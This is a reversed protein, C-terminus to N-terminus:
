EDALLAHLQPWEKWCLASCVQTIREHLAIREPDDTQDFIELYREHWAYLRDHEFSSLYGEDRLEAIWKPFVSYWGSKPGVPFRPCELLEGGLGLRLQEAGDEGTVRDAQYLHYRQLVVERPLPLIEEDLSMGEIVLWYTRWGNHDVIRDVYCETNLPCESIHPVPGYPSPVTHLRTIRLQDLGAPLDLAALYHARVTERSGWAMVCRAGECLTEVVHADDLPVSVMMSFPEWTLPTMTTYRLLVDDTEPHRWVLILAPQPGAATYLLQRPDTLEATGDQLEQHTYFRSAM